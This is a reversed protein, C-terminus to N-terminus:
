ANRSVLNKFAVDLKSNAADVGGKVEAVAARVKALMEEINDFRAIVERAHVDAQQRVHDAITKLDSPIAALKAVAAM